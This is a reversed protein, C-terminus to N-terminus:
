KYLKETSMSHYVTSTQESALNFFTLVTGSCIDMSHSLPCPIVM